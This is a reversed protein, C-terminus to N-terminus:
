RTAERMRNTIADARADAATMTSTPQLPPMDGRTWFCSVADIGQALFADRVRGSFECAILWTM